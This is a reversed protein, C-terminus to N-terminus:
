LGLELVLRNPHNSCHDERETHSIQPSQQYTVDSPDTGVTPHRTKALEPSIHQVKVLGVPPEDPPTKGHGEPARTDRVISLAGQRDLCLEPDPVNCLEQANLPQM